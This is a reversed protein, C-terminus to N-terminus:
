YCLEPDIQYRMPKKGKDKPVPHASQAPEINMNKLAQAVGEQVRLNVEAEMEAKMEVRMKRIIAEFENQDAVKSPSERAM